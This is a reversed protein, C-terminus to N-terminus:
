VTLLRKEAKKRDFDAAQFFTLANDPNIGERRCWHRYRELAAIGWLEAPNAELIGAIRCAMDRNPPKLKGQEMQTIYQGTTGVAQAVEKSTLGRLRRMKKLYQGFNMYAEGKCIAIEPSEIGFRPPIDMVM